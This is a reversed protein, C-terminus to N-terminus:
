WALKRATRIWVALYAALSVTAVGEATLAVVMAAGYGSERFGFLPSSESVLLFAIATAAIVIGALALVVVVASSWRGAIRELPSLLGFGVLTGGAFNLAFLTGITPIDSYHAGFFRELHVAAMALLGLAGVVRLALAPRSARRRAGGDLYRQLGRGNAHSERAFGGPRQTQATRAM